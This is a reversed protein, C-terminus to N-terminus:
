TRAAPSSLSAFRPSSSAATRADRASGVVERFSLDPDAHWKGGCLSSSGAPSPTQTSRRARLARRRRTWQRWAAASARGRRGRGPPNDPLGRAILTHRLWHTPPRRYETEDQCPALTLAQQREGGVPRLRGDGEAAVVAEHVEGQRVEHVRAVEPDDHQRLVLAMAEVPVHRRDPPQRRQEPVVDCGDRGLLPEPRLPE